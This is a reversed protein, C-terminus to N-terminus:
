PLTCFHILGLYLGSFPERGLSDVLQKGWLFLLQSNCVGLRGALAAWWPGREQQKRIIESEQLVLGLESASTIFPSFVRLHSLWQVSTDHLLPRKGFLRCGLAHLCCMWAQCAEIILVIICVCLYHKIIHWLLDVPVLQSLKHLM